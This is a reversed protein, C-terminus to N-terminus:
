AEVTESVMELVQEVEYRANICGIENALDRYNRLQAVMADYTKRPITITLTDISEPENSDMLTVIAADPSKGVLADFAKDLNACAQDLSNEIKEVPKNDAIKKAELRESKLAAALDNAQKLEAAAKEIRMKELTKALLADATAKATAEAKIREEEAIRARAAELKAEEAKAHTDIRSVVLLKFDEESKYIITQLDAFLARHDNAYDNFWALNSRVGKAIDSTAIKARALETDAADHLSALTRKNKMAGAFDPQAFMLRIPTIEKELEAVYESFLLKAENLIGAKIVEKQTKVLKDLTLRKDRLQAQIHDLTRMLDDISATQAIAAAKTLEINKEAEACFRVTAEAQAFDEDTKLDTNIAAIFREASEKFVPLNSNAVEGRIHVVLAPLSMISEARPKEALEKPQYEALDIKFQEWGAIIEARLAADAAYWCNREEILEDGNWKSAMFLIRECGSVMCQQEMQVRYAKPLADGFCGKFMASRLEDNLTKHEFGMAEDMTLGDFSASYNGNSGVVPYLDEGIIREALARALVEIRHGEDFRRQTAADVEKAIGTARAHILESRTQYQSCGLMAPADSANFHNARYEHWDKSGQLLSHVQMKGLNIM